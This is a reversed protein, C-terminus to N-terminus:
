VDCFPHTATLLSNNTYFDIINAGIMCTKLPTCEVAPTRVSGKSGLIVPSTEIRAMDWLGSAIFSSLVTAGGEVLVSTIGRAYLTALLSDVTECDRLLLTDNRDELLFGSAIRGRRDLVVPRPSRGPFLRVDLRPNDAIVTSSGVLIADHLSRLRHVVTSGLRSSFKAASTDNGRKVDMFGDASRAWKLTVFPRKLSHATIFVANLRRSEEAMIGDVVQVGAQRLMAIGRGAVEPFPDTAAIVVRPIQNDILLRACPPTKGYHSCPELTVYATAEALLHRDEGRVSAVANVEAHGQGYIRHHGEGIIRGTSDTIVCGVMPNPSVTGIGNAALSLARRMFRNDSGFM